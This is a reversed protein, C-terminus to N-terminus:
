APFTGTAYIGTLGANTFDRELFKSHITPQLAEKIKEIIEDVELKGDHAEDWINVSSGYERSPTVPTSVKLFGFNIDSDEIYAARGDKIVYIYSNSKARRVEYENTPLENIIATLSPKLPRIDTM